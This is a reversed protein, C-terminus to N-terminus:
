GQPVLTRLDAIHGADLRALCRAVVVPLETGGAFRQGATRCFSGRFRLWQTNSAIFARKASTTSLSGFVSANLRNITRDRALVQREACGEMQLTSRHAPAGSCPLPTFTEKVVPPRLTAAGANAATALVTAAAVAALTTLHRM